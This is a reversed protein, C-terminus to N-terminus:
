GIAQLAARIEARVDEHGEIEIASSLEQRAQAGNIRGLAWAAHGRVLPEQEEQLTRGLTPVAAEDRHNGL